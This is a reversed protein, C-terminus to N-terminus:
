SFKIFNQQSIANRTALREPQAARSWHPDVAAPALAEYWVSLPQLVSPPVLHLESAELCLRPM